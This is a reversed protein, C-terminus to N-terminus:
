MAYINLLFKLTLPKIAFPMASVRYVESLFADTDINRQTTINIIDSIQLPCLEFIGVQNDGWLEMLGYELQIPWDATRCAIRLTLREIPCHKLEQILLGAITDIRLLCEDLSDLFLHLRHSGKLWRIFVSNEFLGRYLSTEAGYDALNLYLTEDPTETVTPKFDEYCKGMETSKGIGPEGLLVLCPVHAIESFPIETPQQWQLRFSLRELPSNKAQAEGRPRWLRQSHVTKDIM